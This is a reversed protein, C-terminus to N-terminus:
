CPTSGSSCTSGPRRARSTSCRSTGRPGAAARRRARLVWDPHARSLDSDPNVMEPEVWLGFEMGLGRVQDILPGCGTRGCRRTSTWDGLGATDDRRGRFWGDDLVFREVGVEAARRGARAAPRPRPRLLGGGLHQPHGAAATAPPRAPGARLPPLPPEPRRARGRLVHAPRARRVSARPWCSRAPRSCNAGGLCAAGRRRAARRPAHDGSWAVHVAWVEGHRFGFGPTGAVMLLTADPGTRGHRAERVWARRRRAPAAAAAAGEGAAPSTSCRTPRPRCRCCSSGTWGTRRPVATASGYAGAPAPRNEQPASNSDENHRGARKRPVPNTTEITLTDPTATHSVYGLVPSWALGRGSPGPWAPSAWSGPRTPPSSRSRCRSTWAPRPFRPLSRWACNAPTWSTGAARRGLAARGPRRRGLRRAAPLRWRRAPPRTRRDVLRDPGRDM